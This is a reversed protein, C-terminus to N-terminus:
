KAPTTQGTKQDAKSGKKTRDKANKEGTEPKGTQADHGPADTSDSPASQKAPPQKSESQAFALGASAILWAALISLFCKANM